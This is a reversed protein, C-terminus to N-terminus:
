LKNILELTISNLLSFGKDTLKIINDSQNILKNEKLSNITDYFSSNLHKYKKIEGLDIGKSMRLGLFVYEEVIDDECLVEINIKDMVNEYYEYFNEYNSYRSNGVKSHASVGFGYYDDLEWYKINHKCEYGQKAYNSVEYKEYGAEYLMNKVVKNYEVDEDDSALAYIGKEYLKYFPTGEEVILSYASIHEPNLDIVEKVTTKIDDVSQTPLNYMIDININDFGAERANYFIDIVQQRNHSRGIKKLIEDNMSQVGFSIRNIGLKRLGILYNKDVTNPNCEISFETDNLMNFKDLADVIKAISKLPLVTPTGGGIFISDIEDEIETNEIEYVLKDIYSLFENEMNSFSNFDCYLCKSSCFPIHIYIGTSM